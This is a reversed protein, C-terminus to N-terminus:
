VPVEQDQIAVIERDWRVFNFVDLWDKCHDAALDHVPTGILLFEFFPGRMSVSDVAAYHGFDACHRAM